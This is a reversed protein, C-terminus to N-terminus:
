RYYAWDLPVPSVAPIAFVLFIAFFTRVPRVTGTALVKGTTRGQARRSDAGHHLQAVGQHIFQEQQVDLRIAQFRCNMERHGIYMYM